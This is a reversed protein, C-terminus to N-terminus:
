SGGCTRKLETTANILESSDVGSGTGDAAARVQGGLRDLAVAAKDASKKLKGDTNGAQQRLTAAGSAYAQAVSAPDDVKSMAQRRIDALTRELRGCVKKNVGGGCGASTLALAAILCAGIVRTELM